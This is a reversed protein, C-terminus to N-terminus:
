VNKLGRADIVKVMESGCKHCYQVPGSVKAGCKFCVYQHKSKRQWTSKAIFEVHRLERQEKILKIVEGVGQAHMPMAHQAFKAQLVQAKELLEDADIPKM